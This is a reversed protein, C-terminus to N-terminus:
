NNSAPFVKYAGMEIKQNGATNTAEISYYRARLGTVQSGSGRPPKRTFKLEMSVSVGEPLSGATYTYTAGTSDAISTLAATNQMLGLNSATELAAFDEIYRRENGAMRSELSSSRTMMVGMIIVAVMVILVLVLVAGQRDKLIDKMRM